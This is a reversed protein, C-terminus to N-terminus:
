PRRRLRRLRLNTLQAAPKSPTTYTTGDDGSVAVKAPKAGGLLSKLFDAMAFQGFSLILLPVTLHHPLELRPM